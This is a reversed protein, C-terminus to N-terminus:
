HDIETEGVFGVLLVYLVRRSECQQMNRADRGDLASLLRYLLIMIQRM